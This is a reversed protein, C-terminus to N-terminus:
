DLDTLRAAAAVRMMPRLLRQAQLLPRDPTHDAPSVSVRLVVSTATVCGLRAAIWRRVIHM